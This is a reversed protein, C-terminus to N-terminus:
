SAAPRSNTKHEKRMSCGANYTMFVQYAERSPIHNPRIKVKKQIEKRAAYDVPVTPTCSSAQSSEAEKQM